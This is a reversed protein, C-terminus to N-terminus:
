GSYQTKRKTKAGEHGYPTHLPCQSQETHKCDKKWVPVSLFSYLSTRTFGSENLFKHYSKRIRSTPTLKSESILNFISIKM